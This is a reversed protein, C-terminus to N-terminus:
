EQRLVIDGRRRDIAANAIALPTMSASMISENAIRAAATTGTSVGGAIQAEPHHAVLDRACAAIPAPPPAPRIEDSCPGIL